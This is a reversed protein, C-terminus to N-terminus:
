AWNDVRVGVRVQVGSDGTASHHSPSQSRAGSPSVATWAVAVSVRHTMCVLLIVIVVGLTVSVAVFTTVLAMIEDELDDAAKTLDAYSVTLVLVYGSPDVGSTAM